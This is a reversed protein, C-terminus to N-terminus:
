GSLQAELQVKKAYVRSMEEELEEMRQNCKIIQDRLHQQEKTMRKRGKKAQRKKMEVTKKAPKKAAKKKKIKKGCAM